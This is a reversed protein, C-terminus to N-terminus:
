GQPPHWLGTRPGTHLYVTKQETYEEVSFRGLERGLGSQKYGGFALEPAGDMFTNVWVTGARIARALRIARDVDRTWVSGSLGYATSNAIRIADEESQFRVVTLVPGFIEERAITANPDTTDFVTPQIFRGKGTDLVDGGLRLTAGCQKGEELYGKIKDFQKPDIIAGIKVAPDLPDGVPVTRIREVVDAVFRDAMDAHVLIRSGSNCCEGMNFLTGFTVADVAAAWDCDPFLIQPNKGGLEFAVKKLNGAAAAMVRKGIATSGTFSVMDIGPHEGIAAGVPDGYGTVIQVVNDPLGAAELIEGLVLTTGPTLESPKIVACCGAALAFPLKQSIILLPFNWPTILGVVGIPERLMLGLDARGLTNVTDGHLNRALAAAYDWLGAAWDMEDRAQSIPKGSELTEVRALEEKRARIGAAVKRLLTERDTGTSHPWPGTDFADRAAAVARDVDQRGCEPYTGVLVDHAPSFRQYTGAEGSAVWENAIWAHYTRPTITDDTM